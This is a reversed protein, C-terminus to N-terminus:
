SGARFHAVLGVRSSIGLKAYAHSLHYEVTKVSLILERAIRRNTLGTAALQAVAHEQPTLGDPTRVEGESEGGPRVGCAVLERDCAKVFPVAGLEVLVARAAALHERAAARRGARRLWAGFDSEARARHFPLGVRVAHEVATEYAEEAAKAEHRAAHLNGRVRGAAALDSYRRRDFAANEYPELVAEAEEARGEAVLADALLDRWALVGPQNVSHDRDCALLPRLAAVVEAPRGRVTAVAARARAAYCHAADTPDTRDPVAAASDAHGAARDFEGRAALVFAAASHPFSTLWIQHGDAAISAAYELHTVAEDWRGLRLEAEGVLCLAFARLPVPGQRLVEAAAEFEEHALAIRDRWLHLVGRGLLLDVDGPPVLAPDPLGDTRALGESDRGSMGLALLHTYRLMRAAPATGSQRSATEAWRRAAEGHGRLLAMAALRAATRSALAPDRREADVSGTDLHAADSPETDSRETDSPETDSRETDSPETDLHAANSPEADSRETDSRETDSPETDSPETDSPETDLHAADVREADVREADLRWAEEFLVTARTNHGRTAALCGQAYRVAAAPATGRPVEELLCSAEDVRGDLLLAEVAEVALRVRETDPRALHSADQLLTAADAWRGERARRGACDALLAALRDDPGHAARVRHRLRAFEGETLEAARAHLETRRAPGLAHYVAARSLPHPFDVKTTCGARGETLLGEKLAEELPELLETLGALRAAAELACPTGLVAAAVVLERAPETCRALRHLVLAAYPEPVPLPTDDAGIVEESLRELLARCHLPNGGTHAHLRVAARGPLGAGRGMRAGLEALEAVTLGGLRLRVTSDQDLVRRLSEPLRPRETDRVTLVALVQDARLRRLVFALAHLSPGDVWHLDDVFLVVAGRGGQLEGVAELLCSGAALPDPYARGKGLLQAVGGYPLGSESEAGGGGVVREAGSEALFRRVLATKGIGAPGEVVVVRPRGAGAEEYLRGLLEREAERGVFGCGVGFREAM